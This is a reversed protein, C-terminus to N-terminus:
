STTAFIATSGASFSREFTELSTAARVAGHDLAAALADLARGSYRAVAATEAVAPRAGTGNTLNAFGSGLAAEWRTM